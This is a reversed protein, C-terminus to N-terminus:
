KVKFEKCLAAFYTPHLDLLQAAKVRNGGTEKLARELIKRRCADLEQSWRGLAPPMADDSTM